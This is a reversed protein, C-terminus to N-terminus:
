TRKELVLSRLLLGLALVSVVFTRAEVKEAFLTLEIATLILFTIFMLGSEYTTLNLKRDTSTSGLNTAIAGVFGVAYLNALGIMDNVFVLVVIPMITAIWLPINPVGYKNIKQFTKPLQGDLSMVFLLSNLAVIATNVTSILLIGFVLSVIYGFIYGIDAGFFDTAFVQGMYRLMSDRVNPYGPASVEDGTIVLGPLATVALGFLATFISVEFMVAIIAPTSTKVVSPKTITSGPDLRMVGTTNAIAEIGSLAVVISVFQTWDLTWSHALPTVANFAQGLHPIAFWAM